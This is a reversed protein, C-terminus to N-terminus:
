WHVIIYLLVLSGESIAFSFIYKVGSMNANGNILFAAMIFSMYKFLHITKNLVSNYANILQTYRPSYLQTFM